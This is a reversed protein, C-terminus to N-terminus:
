EADCCIRMGVRLYVTSELPDFGSSRLEAPAVVDDIIEVSGPSRRRARGAEMLWECFREGQDIVIHSFPEQASLAVINLMERVHLLRVTSNTQDEVYRCYALADYYNMAAPHDDKAGDNAEAIDEGARLNAWGPSAAMFANFEAVTVPHRSVYVPRSGPLELREVGPITAPNRSKPCYMGRHRLYGELLEDSGPYTGAKHGERYYWSEADYRLQEEWCDTQRDFWALFPSRGTMASPLYDPPIEDILKNKGQMDGASDHSSRCVIDFCGDPGKLFAIADNFPLVEVWGESSGRIAIALCEGILDYYEGEESPTIGGPWFIKPVTTKKRVGDILITGLFNAVAYVAPGWIDDVVAMCAAADASQIAKKLRIVIPQLSRYLPVIRKGIFWPSEPTVGAATYLRSVRDGGLFLRDAVQRTSFHLGGFLGPDVLDQHHLLGHREIFGRLKLWGDNKFHGWDRFGLTRATLDYYPQNKLPDPDKRRAGFM